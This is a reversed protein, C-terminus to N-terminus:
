AAQADPVVLRTIPMALPAPPVMTTVAAILGREVAVSVAQTRTSVDLKSLIAKVHAKVTGVAIDLSRAIVKNSDGRVLLGLVDMERATLAEHMLSDAMRQASMSCLYRGGAAVARLCALIEAQGCNSHLYGRVGAQLALRVEQERVRASVVMLAASVAENGAARHMAVRLAEDHDTILVQAATVGPAGPGRVTLGPVQALTSLLGSGILHEAHRIAIILGSAPLPAM